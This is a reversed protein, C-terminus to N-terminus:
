SSKKKLFPDDEVTGGSAYHSLQQPNMINQPFGDYPNIEVEEELISESTSDKPLEGFKIEIDGLKFDTIGQKRCIKFLHQLDKLDKIM